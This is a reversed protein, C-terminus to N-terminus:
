HNVTMILGPTRGMKIELVEPCKVGIDRQGTM